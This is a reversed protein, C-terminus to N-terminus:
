TGNEKMEKTSLVTSDKNSSMNPHTKHPFIHEKITLIKWLRGAKLKQREVAQNEQAVSKKACNEKKL